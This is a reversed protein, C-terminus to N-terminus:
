QEFGKSQGKTNDIFNFDGATINYSQHEHEVELVRTINKMKEITLNNNTDLYVANINYRIKDRAHQIKVNLIRGQIKNKVDIIEYDDKILGIIGTHFENKDATTHM